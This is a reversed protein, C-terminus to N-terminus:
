PYSVYAAFSRVRSARRFNEDPVVFRTSRPLTCSRDSCLYKYVIRTLHLRWVRCHSYATLLMHLHVINQFPYATIFWTVAM